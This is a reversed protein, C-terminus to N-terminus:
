LFATKLPMLIKVMKMKLLLQMIRTPLEAAFVVITRCLGGVWRLGWFITRVM